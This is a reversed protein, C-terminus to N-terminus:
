MGTGQRGHLMLTQRSRKREAKEGSTGEDSFEVGIAHWEACPKKAPPKAAAKALTQGQELGQRKETGAMVM